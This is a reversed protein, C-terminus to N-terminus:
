CKSCLCSCGSIQRTTGALVDPRFMKSIYEHHTIRSVIRQRFLCVRRQGGSRNGIAQMDLVYTWCKLPVNVDLACMKIIRRACRRPRCLSPCASELILLRGKANRVCNIGRNSIVEHTAHRAPLSLSNGNGFCTQRSSRKLTLVITRSSQVTSVSYFKALRDAKLV